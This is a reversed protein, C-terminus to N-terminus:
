NGATGAPKAADEARKRAKVLEDELKRQEEATLMTDTRAPPLDHVAPYAAPPAPRPPSGEPRGGAAPPLRDPRSGGARGPRPSRAPPRPVLVAAACLRRVRAQLSPSISTMGPAGRARRPVAGATGAAQRESRFQQWNLRNACFETTGCYSWLLTSGRRPRRSKEREGKVRPSAMIRRAPAGLLTWTFDGLGV